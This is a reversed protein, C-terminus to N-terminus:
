SSSVNRGTHCWDSRQSCRDVRSIGTRRYHECGLTSSNSKFQSQNAILCRRTRRPRRRRFLHRSLAPEVLVTPRPTELEAASCGSSSSSSSAAAPAPASAAVLAEIFESKELLGKIPIGRAKAEALLERVPMMKLRAREDIGAM